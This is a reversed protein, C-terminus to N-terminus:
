KPTLIHIKKRVIYNLFDKIINKQTMQYKISMNKLIIYFIIVVITM